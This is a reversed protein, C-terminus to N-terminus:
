ESRLSRRHSKDFKKKRVIFTSKFSRDSFRAKHSLQLPPPFLMNNRSFLHFETKNYNCDPESDSNEHCVCISLM